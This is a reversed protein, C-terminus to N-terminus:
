TAGALIGTTGIARASAGHVLSKDQLSAQVPRTLVVQIMDEMNQASLDAGNLRRRACYAAKRGSVILESEQSLDHTSM